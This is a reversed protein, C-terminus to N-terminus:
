KKYDKIKNRMDAPNQKGQHRQHIQAQEIDQVVTNKQQQGSEIIENRTNIIEEKQSSLNNQTGEVTSRNSQQQDQVRQRFDNGEKEMDMKEDEYRKQNDSKVPAGEPRASGRSQTRSVGSSDAHHAPKVTGM